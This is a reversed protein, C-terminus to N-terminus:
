GGGLTMAVRRPRAEFSDVPMGVGGALPAVAPRLSPQPAVPKPTEIQPPRSIKTPLGIMTVPPCRVGTKRRLYSAGGRMGVERGPAETSM